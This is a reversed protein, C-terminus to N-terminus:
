TPLNNITLSAQAVVGQTAGNQGSNFLAYVPVTVSSASYDLSVATIATASNGTTSSNGTSIQAFNPASFWQVGSGGGEWTFVQTNPYSVTASAPSILAVGFSASGIYPVTDVTATATIECIGASVGTAIGTGSNITAIGTNSSTWVFTPQPELPLGYPMGEGYNPITTDWAFAYFQLTDGTAAVSNILSNQPANPAAESNAYPNPAVGILGIKTAM